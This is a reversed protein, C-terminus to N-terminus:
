SDALKKKRYETPTVGTREKFARNFPGLSGYGLDMAVTLVPINRDGISSLRDKAATIRYHNLFDAFNRYGLHTNILRRLRHEPLGAETALSAITLGQRLYLEEDEILREITELDHRENPDSLDNANYNGHLRANNDAGAFIANTRLSIVYWVLLLALAWMATSQFLMISAALTEMPFVTEFVSITLAALSVAIIYIGRFQRRSEVLDDDRGQWAVYLMHAILLFRSLTYLIAVVQALVTDSNEFLVFNARSLLYFGLGLLVYNPWLDLRDRFQSLAFLWIAIQGTHCFVEVLTMWPGLIERLIENTCILYTAGAMSSWAGLLAVKRDRFDRLMLAGLLLFFSIGSFRFFADIIGVSSLEAM